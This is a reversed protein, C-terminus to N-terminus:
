KGILDLPDEGTVKCVFLHMFHTILLYIFLFVVGLIIVGVWASLFGGVWNMVTFVSYLLRDILLLEGRIFADRYVLIPDVLLRAFTTGYFSYVISDIISLERWDDYAVYGYIQYILIGMSTLVTSIPFIFWSLFWPVAFYDVISGRLEKNETRM